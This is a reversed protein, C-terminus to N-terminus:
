FAYSVAIQSSYGLYPDSEIALDLKFKKHNIGIGGYQKFPKISIGGRLSLIELLQYDIGLGVRYKENLNKTLNTAILIKNTAQYAAGINIASPLYVSVNSNNYTQKSPNNVNIGITIQQNLHYMIGADLSFGIASGYNQIKLQHYNVRLGISFQDGFNKALSAGTTIENYETIGYRQFGLGVEYKKFPLVLKLSQNSLENQYFYKAYGIAIIPNKSQTNKKFNGTFNWTDNVAVNTYGMSVLRAGALNQTFGTNTIFILTLFTIIFKNMPKPLGLKFM